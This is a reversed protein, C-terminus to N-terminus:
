ASKLSCKHTDASLSKVLSNEHSRVTLLDADSLKGDLYLALLIILPSPMDMGQEFRSGQSQTVGFRLWFETQNENLDIRLWKLRYLLTLTSKIPAMISMSSKKNLNNQYTIKALSNNDAFSHWVM